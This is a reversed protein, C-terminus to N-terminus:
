HERGPPNPLDGGAIRAVVAALAGALDLATKTDLYPVVHISIEGNENATISALESESQWVIRPDHPLKRVEGYGHAHITSHGSNIQLPPLSLVAVNYGLALSLARKDDEDLARDADALLTPAAIPEANDM